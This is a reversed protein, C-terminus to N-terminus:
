ERRSGVGGPELPTLGLTAEGIKRIRDMEPLLASIVQRALREQEQSTTILDQLQVVTDTLLVDVAFLDEGLLKPSQNLTRLVDAMLVGLRERLVAGDAERTAGRLPV